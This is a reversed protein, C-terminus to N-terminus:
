HQARVPLEEDTLVIALDIADALFLADRIGHDEELFSAAPYKSSM